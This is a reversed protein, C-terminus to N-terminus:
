DSYRLSQQAFFFGEPLREFFTETAFGDVALRDSRFILAPGRL